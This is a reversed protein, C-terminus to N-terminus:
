PKDEQLLAQKQLSVVADLMRSIRAPFAANFKMGPNLREVEKLVSYGDFLVSRAEQLRNVEAELLAIRAKLRAIESERLSYRVDIGIDNIM